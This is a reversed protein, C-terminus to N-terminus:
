DAASGNTFYPRKKYLRRLSPVRTGAEHVYPVVGTKEYTDRAWVIPGQRTMTLREWEGFPVRSDPRNTVLRAEHCHECGDRFIEAGRREEASWVSRGLVAPNPRHTFQMLFVMLARRLMEPSLPEPGVGLYALWPAQATGIAFWPDHRRRCGRGARCARAEGRRRGLRRAVSRCPRSARRRAPGGHRKGSGAPADRGRPAAMDGQSHRAPEDLRARGRERRRVRRPSRSCPRRRRLPERGETDRRGPGVR